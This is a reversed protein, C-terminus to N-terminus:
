TYFVKADGLSDLWYDMRPLTYTDPVTASNLRSYDVCFRVSGDRKPVLVVLSAWESTSTEIVGGYLKQRIQKSTADRMDLGQRYPIQNKPAEQGSSLETGRPSKKVSIGM